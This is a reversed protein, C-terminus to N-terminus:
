DPRQKGVRVVLWSEPGRTVLTVIPISRILTARHLAMWEKLPLDCGIAWESERVVVWEIDQPVNISTSVHSRLCTVRRTGFPRWLSYDTDDPSGVFGINKVDKPLVARLPALVDNRHAYASYTLAMRRFLASEPHNEVLKATITQAPWLPRAPSLVLLPLACLAPLFLFMRWARHRLLLSQAPLLLFPIVALPYYPLMLRGAAESGMKAMCFLLAVLGGCVVPPLLLRLNSRFQTRGAGLAAAVLGGLLLASIGLGLGAGEEAPLETVRSQFYRPCHKQLFGRFPGPMKDAAWRTVQTAAPLVPPMLSTQVLLLGNGILGAAPHTIQMKFQNKPDGNWGGTNLQNMAVTPAASIIVAAAAAALTGTPQTRLRPLAPWVAILWPLLLPLNSLKIGTLLAAALLSLRIDSPNGTHRARLACNVAILAFVAGTLDNGISAAQTVCGYAFPFIWMWTWAVKRVVGLQRCTSFFLGPLLLFGGLNLLFLGRDSHFLALQPLGAWEWAPTTINMRTNITDVWHWGGTDMWNLMRPLRYTLGDYNSPAYLAGGAFTLGAIILFTLPLKQSFRKRNVHWPCRPIRRTPLAKHRYIMLAGAGTLLVVAYGITNLCGAASLMWGAVSLYAWAWVWLATTAPTPTSKM